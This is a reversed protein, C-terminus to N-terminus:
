TSATAVEPAATTPTTTATTTTTTTTPPAGEFLATYDEEYVVDGVSGDGRKPQFPQGDVTVAVSGIGPLGTLTLV